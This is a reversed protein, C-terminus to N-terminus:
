DEDMAGDGDDDMGNGCVEAGGLRVHGGDPHESTLDSSGFGAPECGTLLLLGVFVSAISRMACVESASGICPNHRCQHVHILLPIRCAESGATSRPRPTGLSQSRERRM